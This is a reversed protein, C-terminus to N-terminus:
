SRKPCDIVEMSTRVLVHILSSDQEFGRDLGIGCVDSWISPKCVPIDPSNALPPRIIGPAVFDRRIAVGIRGQMSVRRIRERERHESKHRAVEVLVEVARNQM